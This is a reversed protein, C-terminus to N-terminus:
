LSAEWFVTVSGSTLDANAGDKIRVTINTGDVSQPVAFYANDGTMDLSVRIPAGVLGHAILANGTGDPSLIALGYSTAGSVGFFQTGTGNNAVTTNVSGGIFKNYNASANIYASTTADTLQGLKFTNYIAGARVNIGVTGDYTTVNLNNYDGFIDVAFSPTAKTGAPDYDMSISGTWADGLLTVGQFTDGPNYGTLNIYNNEVTGDTVVVRM